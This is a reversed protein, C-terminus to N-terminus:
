VHQIEPANRRKRSGAACKKKGRKVAVSFEPHVSAWDAITDRAVDIEAAFSTLSPPYKTRWSSGSVEIFTPCTSPRNIARGVM